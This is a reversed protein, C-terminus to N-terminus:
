TENGAAGVIRSVIAHDVAYTALVVLALVGPSAVPWLVVAFGVTATVVRAVDRLRNM